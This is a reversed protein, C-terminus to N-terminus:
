DSAGADSALCAQCNPNTSAGSSSPCCYAVVCNPPVTCATGSECEDTFLSPNCRVGEDPHCGAALLMAALLASPLLTLSRDM